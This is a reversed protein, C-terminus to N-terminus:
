VERTSRGRWWRILEPVYLAVLSVVLGALFLADNHETNLTGHQHFPLWVCLLWLVANASNCVLAMPTQKSRKRLIRAVSLPLLILQVASFAILCVNFVLNYTLM